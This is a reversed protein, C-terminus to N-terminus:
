VTVAVSQLRRTPKTDAQTSYLSGRPIPLVLMCVIGVAAKAVPCPVGEHAQPPATTQTCETSVAEKLSLLLAVYLPYPV